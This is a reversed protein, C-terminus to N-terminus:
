IYICIICMCMYMYPPRRWLGLIHGRGRKPSGSTRLKTLAGCTHLVCRLLHPESRPDTTPWWFHNHGSLFITTKHSNILPEIPFWRNIPTDHSIYYKDYSYWPEIPFDSVKNPVLTFTQTAPRFTTVNQSGVSCIEQRDLGSHGSGIHSACRLWSWSWTPKKYLIRLIMFSCVLLCQNKGSFFPDVMFLHSDLREGCIVVACLIQLSWLLKYKWISEPQNLVSGTSAGCGISILM